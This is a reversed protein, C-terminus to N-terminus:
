CCNKTAASPQNLEKCMAIMATMSGLYFSTCMGDPGWFEIDYTNHHPEESYGSRKRIGHVSAIISAKETVYSSVKKMWQTDGSIRWERYIEIGGLQGDAAAFTTRPPPYPSTAFNQEQEDQSVLFETERLTRELAPFLHPSQGCADTGSMPAAVTVAVPM